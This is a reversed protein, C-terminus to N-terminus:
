SMTDKTQAYGTNVILLFISISKNFNVKIIM